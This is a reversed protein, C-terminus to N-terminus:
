GKRLNKPHLRTGVLRKGKKLLPQVHHTVRTEVQRPQVSCGGHPLTGAATTQAPKPGKQKWEKAKGDRTRQRHSKTAVTKVTQRNM